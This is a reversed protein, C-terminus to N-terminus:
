YKQWVKWAKKRVERMSLDECVDIWEGGPGRVSNSVYWRLYSNNWYYSKYDCIDWQEYLRKYGSGNSLDKGQRFHSRVRKNAFKKGGRDQDKFVPTKRRSRSM